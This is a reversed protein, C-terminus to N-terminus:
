HYTIGSTTLPSLLAVQRAKVAMDILSMEKGFLHLSHTLSMTGIHEEPPPHSEWSATWFHSGFSWLKNWMYRLDIGSTMLPTHVCQLHQMDAGNEPVEQFFYFTLNILNKKGTKVNNPISYISEAKCHVFTKSVMKKLIKCNPHPKSSSRVEIHCNIYHETRGKYVWQGQQIEPIVPIKWTPESGEAHYWLYIWGNVETSTYSKIKAIDPVTILIYVKLTMKCLPFVVKLFHKIRLFTIIFLKSFIPTFLMKKHIVKRQIHFKQASGTAEEFSGVM